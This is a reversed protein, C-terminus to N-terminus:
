GRPQAVREGVLSEALPQTRLCIEEQHQEWHRLGEAKETLLTPLVLLPFPTMWALAAAENAAHLLRDWHVAEPTDKLFEDLLRLKTRELEQEPVGRLPVPLISYESVGKEVPRHSVQGIPTKM